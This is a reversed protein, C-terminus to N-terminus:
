FISLFVLSLAICLFVLGIYFLRQNETFVKSSFKFQLIDDLLYFMNDKTNVLIEGLTQKTIPKSYHINIDGVKEDLKKAMNIKRRKKYQNYDKNLRDIELTDQDLKYYFKGENDLYLDGRPDSQDVNLDM